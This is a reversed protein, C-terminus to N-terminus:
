AAPVEKKGTVYEYILSKKYEELTAIQDKYNQLLADIESCKSDLYSVIQQQELTPPQIIYYNLVNEASLNAACSGNMFLSTQIANMESQLYYNLYDPNIYQPTICVLSSAITGANVTKNIAANGATSGRLCFLIDNLKIKAGGLINYRSETIFKNKDSSCDLYQEHINNATFFCIGDDVLDNGSPYNKGRDGNTLIAVNKLKPTKWGEPVEGIWEVGSDKMKADRDLGKTVAETIVVKKYEKVSEMRVRLNEILTDIESCKSDLFDAIRHQEIIDPIIFHQKDWLSISWTAISVSDVVEHSISQQLAYRIFRKDYKKNIHIRIIHDSYASKLYPLYVYPTGNRALLLDNDHTLKWKPFNYTTYIHTEGATFFVINNQDDSWFVKDISEGVNAGNHVYRLKIIKWGEPVEGIWPIGSDRMKREKKESNKEEM